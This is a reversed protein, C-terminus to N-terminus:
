EERGLSKEGMTALSDHLQATILYSEEAGSCFKRARSRAHQQRRRAAFRGMRQQAHFILQVLSSANPRTALRPAGPRTREGPKRPEPHCRLSANRVDRSMRFYTRLLPHFCPFARQLRRPPKLVATGQEFESAQEGRNECGSVRITADAISLVVVPLVPRHEDCRARGPSVAAVIRAFIFIDGGIGNLRSHCSTVAIRM